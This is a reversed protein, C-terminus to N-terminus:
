GAPKQRRARYRAKATKVATDFRGESMNDALILGIDEAKDNALDFLSGGARKLKDELTAIRAKAAKLQEIVSPKREITKGDVTVEGQEGKRWKAVDKRELRPNISGDNLRKTLVPAPLKTLEYLTFVSSPLAHVHARNSIVSHSAIIRL